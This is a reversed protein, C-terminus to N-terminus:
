TARQRQPPKCLRLWKSATRHQSAKTACSEFCSPTVRGGRPVEVARLVARDIVGTMDPIIKRGLTAEERRLHGAPPTTAMPTTTPATQVSPSIVEGHESPSIVLLMAVVRQGLVTAEVEEQRHAPGCQIAEQDVMAPLRGIQSIVVLMGVQTQKSDPDAAQVGLSAMELHRHPDLSLVGLFDLMEELFSKGPCRPRLVAVALHTQTAPGQSSVRVIAGAAALNPHGQDISGIVAERRHLCRIEELSDVEMEASSGVEEIM